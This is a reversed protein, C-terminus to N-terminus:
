HTNIDTVCTPAQYCLLNACCLVARCVCVYRIIVQHCVCLCVCFCLRVFWFCLCMCVFLCVAGDQGGGGEEDRHSVQSCGAEAGCHGGCRGQGQHHHHHLPHCWRGPRGGAGSHSLPGLFLSVHEAIPGHEVCPMITPMPMPTCPTMPMTCPCQGPQAQM